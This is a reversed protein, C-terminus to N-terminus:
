LTRFYELVARAEEETLNQNAMIAGNFEAVMQKTLENEAIMKEPNLIMNMVFEPSRRELIGKPSPGIYTKDVKHCATCKADFVDKGKKVMVSDITEDLILSTIPGIGKNMKPDQTETTTNTSNVDNNSSKNEKTGCSVFVSFAIFILLYLLKNM